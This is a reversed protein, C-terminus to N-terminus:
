NKLKSRIGLYIALLILLGATAIGVFTGLNLGTIGMLGGPQNEVQVVRAIPLPTPTSTPSVEITPTPESTPEIEPTPQPLQIQVDAALEITRGTFILEGRSLGNLPDELMESIIVALHGRPTVDAAIVPGEGLRGSGLNLSEGVNLNVGDWSWERLILNESGGESLHLVQLRGVDDQVVAASGRNTGLGSINTPRSWTLGNDLSVEFWIVTLDNRTEQWMRHVFSEGVGQIQSWMTPDEVVVEAETWTEGRDDSRSYFLAMPGSGGPLTNRTWIVHLFGKSTRSIHPQDVMEWGAAVGNFISIPGSWTNGGDTSKVLYIGRSENLSIAFTVYITGTEDILIEPASGVNQISPLPIPTAWESPSNALSANAWSYYIEGSQGGSWVIFLRERSDIAIDMEKVIGSPPVLVDPSVIWRDIEWRAYNLANGEGNAQSNTARESWVVHLREQDDSIMRLSSLESLGAAVTIPQGWNSPLPFWHSVTELSRSTLWIDQSAGADCGVVVLRNDEDLVTNRCQFEIPKLTEEDVFNAMAQQPQPSSWEVGNWALLYVQDLRTQELLILGDGGIMLNNTEPCGPFNELLRQPPGWSEGGDKSVQYFQRCSVESEAEKWLLIVDEENAVVRIDYPTIAQLSSGPGQVDLIAEWTEGGDGSKIFSLTDRPRNDWAVYIQQSDDEDADVAVIDVNAEEPFIARFYPTEYLSVPTSWDESSANKARYFVGSSYQTTNFALVYAVHLRDFSDIFVDFGQVTEALREATSWSTTALNEAIVNSYFLENESNLWFAHIKGAQDAVLFPLYMGYSADAFEDQAATAAAGGSGRGLSGGGQSEGEDSFDTEFPPDATVPLDWEEGNGRAYVVGELLDLWFVHTIGGKDVVLVPSTTLGSQSLNVPLTWTEGNFQANARSPIMWVIDMVVMIALLTIILRMQSVPRAKM